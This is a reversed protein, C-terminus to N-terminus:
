IEIFLNLYSVQFPCKNLNLHKPEKVFAAANNYLYVPANMEAFMITHM